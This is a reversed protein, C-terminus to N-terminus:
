LNIIYLCSTPIFKSDNGADCAGNEWFVLELGLHARAEVRVDNNLKFKRLTAVIFYMASLVVTGTGLTIAQSESAVLSTPASYMNRDFTPACRRIGRISIKM